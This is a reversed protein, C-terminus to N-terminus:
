RTDGPRQKANGPNKNKLRKEQPGLTDANKLSLGKSFSSSSSKWRSINGQGVGTTTVQKGPGGETPQNVPQNIAWSSDKFSSKEELNTVGNCSMDFNSM